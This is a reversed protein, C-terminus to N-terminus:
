PSLLEQYRSTLPYLYVDKLSVRITMHSDNRTRGQTQGVYIWNAAKYSTGLFRTRDVFTELLYLPHGYKTSWDLSIRKAIRSLISSALSPVSVWPLILFRMNNSLYPLYRERTSANFGIFRDRPATKWAASGFLLCAVPAGSGTRVLYKMNQGVSGRYGLYHYRAM